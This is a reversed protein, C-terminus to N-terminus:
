EILNQDRLWTGMSEFYGDCFAWNSASLDERYGCTKCQQLIHNCGSFTQVTLNEKELYVQEYLAKTAKWDVQSDGEGFIALVPCTVKSLIKDFDDIYVWLGSKTDFHGKKIYSKQQQQYNLRGEETIATVKKFGFLKRSLSDNSLPQMAKISEEYSGGTAVIRHWDMWSKYLRDVEKPKKGAITLNSKLLYGFNEKDNTGSVSIWFDM